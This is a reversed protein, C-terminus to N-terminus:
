ATAPAGRFEGAPPTVRTSPGGANKVSSVFNGSFFKKFDWVPGAIFSLPDDRFAPANKEFYKHGVLNLVWGVTFLGISIAWIPMPPSSVIMGLTGGVIMPIGIVHLWRNTQDLHTAEYFEFAKAWRAKFDGDFDPHRERWDKELGKMGTAILGTAIVKRGAMLALTGAGISVLDRTKENAILSTLSTLKDLM